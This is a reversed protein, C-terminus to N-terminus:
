ISSIPPSELSMPTRTYRRVVVVNPEPLNCQCLASLADSTEMRAQHHHCFTTVMGLNGERVGDTFLIAMPIAEGGKKQGNSTIFELGAKGWMAPSTLNTFLRELIIRFWVTGLLPHEQISTWEKEPFLWLLSPDEIIEDYSKAITPCSM